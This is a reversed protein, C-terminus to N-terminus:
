SNAVTLINTFKRVITFLAKIFDLFGNIIVIWELVRKNKHIAIHGHHIAVGAGSFYSLKVILHVDLYFALGLDDGDGTVNFTLVDISGDLTSHIFNERFRKM